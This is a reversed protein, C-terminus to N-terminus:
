QRYKLWKGDPAFFYKLPGAEEHFVVLDFGIEPDVKAGESRYLLIRLEGIDGAEQDEPSVDGTKYFLEVRRLKNDLCLKKTTYSGPNGGGKRTEFALMMEGLDQVKIESDDPLPTTPCSAQIDVLSFPRTSAAVRQLFGPEATAATKEPVKATKAEPVKRTRDLLRDSIQGTVPWGASEEFAAIATSTKAGMLGDAPGPTYGQAKLFIQVRRVAEQSPTAQVLQGAPWEAQPRRKESGLSAPTVTCFCLFVALCSLCLRTMGGKRMRTKLRKSM